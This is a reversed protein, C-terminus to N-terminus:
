GGPSEWAAHRGVGQVSAKNTPRLAGGADVREWRAVPGALLAPIGTFGNALLAKPERCYM